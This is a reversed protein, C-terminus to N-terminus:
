STELLPPKRRIREDIFLGSCPPRLRVERNAYAAPIAGLAVKLSSFGGTDDTAVDISTAAGEAVMGKKAVPVHSPFGVDRRYKYMGKSAEAPESERGGTDDVDVDSPSLFLFGCSDSGIRLSYPWEGRRGYGLEAGHVVGGSTSTEPATLGQDESKRDQFGIRSGSTSGDDVM